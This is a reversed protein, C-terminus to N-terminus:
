AKHFFTMRIGAVELEDHDVLLQSQSGLSRGNHVPFHNGEVHMIYFGSPQKAIGAVQLGPKGITTIKKTLDLTRGAMSGNLMKLAGTFETVYKLTHKGIGIIDNHQLVHKSIPQGNVLTGNTSNLDTIVYDKQATCILAHRGSVAHDDVQIDNEPKRGISIEDKNLAVTKLPVGELSLFLKAM